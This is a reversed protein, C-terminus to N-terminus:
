FLKGTMQPKTQHVGKWAHLLDTATPEPGEEQNKKGEYEASDTNAFSVLEKARRNMLGARTFMGHMVDLRKQESESRKARMKQHFPSDSVISNPAPLNNQPPRRDVRPQAKPPSTRALSSTVEDRKWPKNGERSSVPVNNSTSDEKKEDQLGENPSNQNRSYSPQEDYSDSLIKSLEDSDQSPLQSEDLSRSLSLGARKQQWSPSGKPKAPSSRSPNHKSPSSTKAGTSTDRPSRNGKQARDRWAAFVGGPVESPNSSDINYAEPVPDSRQSPVPTPVAAASHMEQQRGRNDDTTTVGPAVRDKSVSDFSRSVSVKPASSPRADKRSPSSHNPKTSSQGGNIGKSERNRWAALVSSASASASRDIIPEATAPQSTSSKMAASDFSGSHGVKPRWQNQMSANPNNGNKERDRWAAVVNGNSSGTAVGTRNVDLHVAPVGRFKTQWPQRAPQAQQPEQDMPIIEILGDESSDISVNLAANDTVQGESKVPSPISQKMFATHNHYGTPLNYKNALGRKEPPAPQPEKFLYTMQVNNDRLWSKVVHRTVWGRAVSQVLLIDEYDRLFAMECLFCRWQSQIITAALNQAIAIQQERAIRENELQQQRAMRENELRQQRAVREAAAKQQRVMREKVAQQQRIMREKAVQQQYVRVMQRAMYSRFTKQIITACYNDIAICDRAYWGRYVAQIRVAAFAFMDM